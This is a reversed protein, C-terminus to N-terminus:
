QSLAAGARRQLTRAYEIAEQSTPAGLGVLALEYPITEGPEALQWGVLRHPLDSVQVATADTLQRIVENVVAIEAETFGSLDADRKAILRHQSREHDQVVQLEAEGRRIMEERLPLLCRPAPGTDLKQYEVGTLAKGHVRYAIFDSFFLVKNLKAAGFTPDDACRASVYLILERMRERAELTRQHDM